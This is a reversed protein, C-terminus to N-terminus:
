AEAAWESLALTADITAEDPEDNGNDMAFDAFGDLGLADFDRGGGDRPAYTDLWNQVFPLGAQLNPGRCVAPGGRACDMIRMKTVGLMEMTSLVLALLPRNLGCEEAASQLNDTHVHSMGDPDDEDMVSLMAAIAALVNIVDETYQRRFDDDTMNGGDTMNGNGM